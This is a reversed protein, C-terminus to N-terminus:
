ENEIRKFWRISDVGEQEEWHPDPVMLEEVVKEIGKHANYFHSEKEFYADHFLVFGGVVLNPFIWHLIDSKVINYTHGGDVFMVHTPGSFEKWVKTSDGQILTMNLDKESADIREWGNTDNAFLAANPAGARMCGCSAGMYIGINVLVTDEGFQDFAKSCTDRLLLREDPSILGPIQMLDM